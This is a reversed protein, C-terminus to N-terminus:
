GKKRSKWWTERMSIASVACNGGGEPVSGVQMTVRVVIGVEEWSKGVEVRRM